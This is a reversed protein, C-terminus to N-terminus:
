ILNVEASPDNYWDGGGSYKARALKVASQQAAPQQVTRPQVPAPIRQATGYLSACLFFFVVVILRISM